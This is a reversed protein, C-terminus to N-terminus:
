ATPERPPIIGEGILTLPLPGAMYEGSFAYLSYRQLLRPMDPHGFLDCRFQGAACPRGDAHDRAFVNAEVRLPIVTPGPHGHGVLVLTISLRAAVIRGQSDRNGPSEPAVMEAPRLPLNYAGRLLLQDHERALSVRQLALAIGPEVPVEPTWDDRHHDMPLASTPPAVPSQQSQVWEVYTRVDPDDGMAGASLEVPAADTVRDGVILRVLLHGPRWVLEPVRKRLDAQYKSVAFGVVDNADRPVAEAGAPEKWEQWTATAVANGEKRVAVLVGGSDVPVQEDSRTAAVALLPLTTRTSVDVLAPAYLAFMARQERGVAAVPAKLDANSLKWLDLSAFDASDTM